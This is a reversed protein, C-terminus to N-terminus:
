VSVFVTVARQNSSAGASRGLMVMRNPYRGTSRAPPRRWTLDPLAVPELTRGRASPDAVGALWGCLEAIRVPIMHRSHFESSYSKFPVLSVSAPDLQLKSRQGDEHSGVVRALGCQCLRDLQQGAAKSRRIAVCPFRKGQFRAPDPVPLGELIEHGPAGYMSPQM